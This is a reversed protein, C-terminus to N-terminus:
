RNCCTPIPSLKLLPLFQTKFLHRKTSASLQELNQEIVMKICALGGEESLKQIVSQRVGVDVEILQHAKQFISALKGGHLEATSNLPINHKWSRVEKESNSWSSSPSASKTETNSPKQGNAVHRFKCNKFKCKGNKAFERCIRDLNTVRSSLSLRNLVFGQPAM